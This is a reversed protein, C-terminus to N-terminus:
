SFMWDSPKLTKIMVWAKGEYAEGIVRFGLRKYLNYAPNDKMVKFEVGKDALKILDNVLITGFGKGRILSDVAVFYLVTIRDRIRHRFCTFGLLKGGQELVRIRGQEYCDDGSFIINSFDKTYPSQKAIRCLEKHQDKTAIKILHRPPM